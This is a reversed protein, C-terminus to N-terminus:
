RLLINDYGIDSVRLSFIKIYLTFFHFILTFIFYNLMSVEPTSNHTILFLNIFYSRGNDLGIFVHSGQRHM